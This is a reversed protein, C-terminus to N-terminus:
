DNDSDKFLSRLTPYLRGTPGIILRRNDLCINNEKTQFEGKDLTNDKFTKYIVKIGLDRYYTLNDNFKEETVQESHFAASIRLLYGTYTLRKRVTLNSYVTIPIKRNALYSIVKNIYPYLFPEGGTISVEKIKTPFTEFVEVWEEYSIEKSKLTKGTLFKNACYSCDLNCRLTIVVSISQGRRFM